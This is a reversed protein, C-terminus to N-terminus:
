RVEGKDSIERDYFVILCYEKSLVDKGHGELVAYSQWKKFAAIWPIGYRMRCLMDCVSDQPIKEVKEVTFEPGNFFRIKDGRRAKAIPKTPPYYEGYPLLIFDLWFDGPVAHRPKLTRSVKM